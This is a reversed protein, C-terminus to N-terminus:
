NNGINIYKDLDSKRNCNSIINILIERDWLVVNTKNALKISPTSFHSNTIVLALDTNYYKKATSVEQIASNSVSHNFYLKCQIAISINNNTVILDAGYDRSKKTKTVKYGLSVFLSALFEEFEYGSLSDINNIDIEQIYKRLVSM